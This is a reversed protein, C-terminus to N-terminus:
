LHCSVREVSVVNKTITKNYYDLSAQKKAVKLALAFLEWGSTTACFVAEMESGTRSATACFVAEM